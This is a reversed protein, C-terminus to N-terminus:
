KRIINGLLVGVGFAVLLSELPRRKLSAEMSSVAGRGQEAVSALASEAGEQLAGLTSAAERVVGDKLLQKVDKGLAALDSRLEDIDKKVENFDTNAVPLEGYKWTGADM